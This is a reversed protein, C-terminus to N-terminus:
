FEQVLFPAIIAVLGAALYILANVIFPYDPINFNIAGLHYLEPILVLIILTLGVFFTVSKMIIGREKISEQILEKSTATVVFAIVFLLLPTERVNFDIVNFEFLLHIVGTSLM